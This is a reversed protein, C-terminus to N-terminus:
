RHHAITLLIASDDLALVAHAVDRDIALVQGGTLTFTSGLVRIVVRGDLVQIMLSGPADHEALQAGRDLVMLISRLDPNHILAKTVRGSARPSDRLARAEAALDLRAIPFDAHAHNRPDTM